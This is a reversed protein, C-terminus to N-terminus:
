RVILTVTTSHTLSGSTGQITILFTGSPTSVTSVPVCSAAFMVLVLMLMVPALRVAWRQGALRRRAALLLSGMVAALLTLVRWDFPPPLQSERSVGKGFTTTVVVKALGPSNASVSVQAPTITCTSLMPQGSCTFAVTGSFGGLSAATLDYEAPLGAAVNQVAPLVSLSFDATVLPNVTTSASASNNGAVPDAVGSTVSVNNTISGPTAPATVVVTVTANSGANISGLNCTLVGGSPAQCTGQSPTASVFTATGPLNDTLVVATAQSPGNNAVTVTYTVNNGVVVPDPSDTKTVALDAAPNVTTTQSIITNNASNPDVEAATVSASNTVSPVAAAQPTVSITVVSNAGSAITGLNCTVVGAAQSCTPAAPNSSVFTVNAPLSDTLTVGTASNPGNNTVTLTYTLTGGVLVPDPSDTKTLALDAVATVSTTQTINTNDAANPDFVPSTASATNTISPVAAALPTVAITVVSNAGSAITGLNCTVVGGAATCTPAGPTASVFTVGAPLTDTLTVSTADNPGNNTVTLTYTLTGNVQVPDPSDTKTLALDAAPDVTTSETASNNVANPDFENASVSASNNITGVAAAQPTVVITVVSNAGSNITGLNCTVVGGAATCTPAGPTASVFTVGAPLTDTLTVGTASNPGNNTVTLTYTLNQGVPVPDPSDTKTLALDAVPQVTTSETASNDAPNPEQEASSASATNNITGVAAAQPTVVITVITNAGNNITGLNCTVVGGSQTCTPSGPTSSVFTVNAPLTDTLVVNTADNPGNNNITITYTLNNGVRVPDPSDAKTVILDASGVVVTGQTINTNNAANPDFEAATVSASNNITGVAAAQPTVVITVVSNAGSNITGLNCTVVGGAATCTPAGPTASVFAVNPPLTDTLTVGTADNPGNNTVTLTYTLNNGAAVPDPSDTKTLVLDASPNVTTSQAINTNNAPNADGEAATVSVTNTISPVAAGSPTVVITVTASASQALTGLNCTLTNGVPAPCNGQSPTASVFSTNAPLTDTLTVNTTSGPGNNTVTVTYTVNQGANVPDPSDTKTVVIDPPPPVQLLYFTAQPSATLPPSSINLGTKTAFDGTASSYTMVQFSDNTVPTFGGFSSVNLTGGLTASGTIALVDFQGAGTGGLEVELTGGPGQTYNGTINLSGPSMGPRLTAGANNVNGAITSGGIADLVGGNFNLTTNTSLGGGNLRTLGGTQTFGGLFTLTGSNANVTGSTTFAPSFSTAAAGLSKTVTGSNNFTGAGTVTFNVDSQVDLSGSNNWTANTFAIDGTSTITTNASTNFTRTNLDKAAAGSLSTAGNANTIGAGSQTGASWALAGSVNVTDTGTLTGGSQNLSALTQASGSSFDITGNLLISLQTSVSGGPNINLTAGIVSTTGGGGIPGSIEYTGSFFSLINGAAPAVTWSGSCSGGCTGGGDLQIGNININAAGTNNFVVQFIAASGAGKTFTGSNNFTGGGASALMTRTTGGLSVNFNANLLNHFTSGGQFSIDGDSWTTTGSNNITHGGALTKTSASSLSGTTAINTTGSGTLTTDTWNLTTVNIIATSTVTGGTLNFTTVSFPGNSANFAGSSIGLTALNGSGSLNLTAGPASVDLSGQVAVNGTVTLSATTHLTLSGGSAIELGSITDGGAASKEVASGSGICVTDTNTPLANTDWNAALEWLNNGLSNDFNITCASAAIVSLILSNATSTADTWTRDAPLVAQSFDFTTSGSGGGAATAVTFSDGINPIFGGTLIVRLTGNVVATGTANLQDHGNAAGPGGTGAIEIDILGGVNETYNGTVNLIGPSLGPSITGGNHVIDATLTGPTGGEILGGALTITGGASVSGGNLRLAGGNQTYGPVNVTGSAANMTGGNFTLGLVFANPGNFNLTGSNMTLTTINSAPANLTGGAINLTGGVAISNTVSLTGGTVNLTGAVNQLSSVTNTGAAHNVTFAAGICVAGTPVGDPNWNAATNFDNTGGGGDFDSDCGAPPPQQGAGTVQLNYLLDPRGDGRWDFVRVFFIGGTSSQFELISDRDIGPNIDDNLCPQDFSGTGATARCLNVRAGNSDLVEIVSDLLSNVPARRAFIELTVMTNALATFKYIDRDPETASGTQGFPSISASTTGNGIPTANAITDNVLASDFSDFTAATGTLTFNLNSATGGASVAVNQIPGPSAGPLPFQETRFPGVNSGGVFAAHVAEVDLNYNFGGLVAMDFTGRLAPDRSGRCLSPSNSCTVGPSSLDNDGTITQGRNETYQYGSVVSVANRRSENIGPTGPDDVRRAIVNVGQAHTAGDSFFVTGSLTGFTTNFNADPYLRSVWAIDDDSLTREPAVGPSEELGGISVPFMTPLGFTDDGFSACSGQQIATLCNLNIQSHGLGLFHGFEHLLTAEFESVSSEGNAGNGDRFRGNLVARAAVFEAIGGVAQAAPGAFGLTSNGPGFLADTITGDNDFIVPNGTVGICNFEAVTDADRDGGSFCGSAPGDAIAGSNTFSVTSTAVAQWEAFLNNVRTVTDANTDAGLPGDDVRYPIPLSTFVIFAGEPGFVPGGIRIPEGARMPVHAVQIALVLFVGALLIAKPTWRKVREM